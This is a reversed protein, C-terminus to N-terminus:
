LEPDVAYPDLPVGLGPTVFQISALNDAARLRASAVDGDVDLGRRSLGAICDSLWNSQSTMREAWTFKIDYGVDKYARLMGWLPIHKRPPVTMTLAANGWTAVVQSDTVVHVTLRGTEKIRDKGFHADFWNLAQLYPLAEAFNISGANMAGFFVRRGRTLRDILLCAWGCPHEWRSGSGDGILLLDYQSIGLRTQLAELLLADPQPTSAQRDSM